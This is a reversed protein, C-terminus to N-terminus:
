ARANNSAHDGNRCDEKLIKVHKHCGSGDQQSKDAKTTSHRKSSLDNQPDDHQRTDRRLHDDAGTMLTDSLLRLVLPM